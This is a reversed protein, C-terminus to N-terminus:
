QLIQLVTSPRENAQALISTAAQTMVNVSTYETMEEAMDVGSTELAHRILKGDQVLFPTGNKATPAFENDGVSQMGDTINFQYIGIEGSFTGNNVIVPNGNRDCVRNGADNVLYFQNGQQSLSFHGNRTYTVAGSSPNVLRFFGKGGIAFDYAGDTETYAEPTFDTNTMEVKVGTGAKMATDQGYQNNMNYYMLNSFSVSKNKYGYNNINALNNATVDLKQQQAIVGRAAAYFSSYM